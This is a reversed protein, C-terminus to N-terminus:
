LKGFFFKKKFFKYLKNEQHKTAHLDPNAKLWFRLERKATRCNVDFWFQHYHKKRCSGGSPKNGFTSKTASVM